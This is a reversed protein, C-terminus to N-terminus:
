SDYAKRFNIFAALMGKKEKVDYDAGVADFDSDSRSM